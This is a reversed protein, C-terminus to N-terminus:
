FQRGQAVWYHWDAIAESTDADVGVGSLQALPVSFKRARWRVRVKMEGLADDEDEDEDMRLVTVREGPELPSARHTHLCEAEFPFSLTDELYCHWGSRAEHENYCDVIIETAIREERDEDRKPRKSPKSKM